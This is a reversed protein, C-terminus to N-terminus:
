APWPSVVGHVNVLHDRVAHDTCRALRRIFEPLVKSRPNHITPRPNVGHAIQHRLTMAVDLRRIAQVSTCNQWFWSNTIGSLGLSDRILREVNHPSPTNFRGLLGTVYANLAPWPDIPPAPPKLVQVSERVLEELYSEWASMSMVVAARNLMSLRHQRGTNGSRLQTHAEDLDDADLLMQRLHVAYANSPLDIGERFLDM